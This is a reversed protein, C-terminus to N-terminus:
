CTAQPWRNRCSGPWRRATIFGGSIVTEIARIIDQGPADKLVYGRAGAQISQMVYESKDHMSLILVAIEPFRAHFEATLDIGNMGRMNIDMLVLDIEHLTALKLAIAPRLDHSIRRVEALVDTIQTATREVCLKAAAAQEPTGSLRIVAAEIQLKISVLWQSIGDHLDRSLRAREEEQSRVVRQALQKLKADAVRHESVNLLLGSLAVVLASLIAIGAILLMTKHIHGSVQNDIKELAADVDDLYIGTGVVWGWNPIAVVYGLKPAVTHSSPKEWLYRVYGGGENARAILLQITPSGSADRWDWM